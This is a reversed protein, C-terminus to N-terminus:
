VGSNSPSLKHPNIQGALCLLEYPITQAWHAAEDAGLMAAGQKGFLVVEDGVAITPQDTVDVVIQDMCVRGLLKHRHGHILVEAKNSMLRPYGNGYGAGVLALESDRALTHTGAYSIRSGRPASRRHIVRSKFTMVPELDGFAPHYGYLAIGARVAGDLIEERLSLADSGGIHTTIGEIGYQRADDMFARLAASQRRAWDPDLWGDSLHTYVAALKLQPIETIKRILPLVEEPLRGLRGMGTDIKLHVRAPRSESAAAAVHLADKDDTITLQIDHQMAERVEAGHLVSFCLIPADIGSDRLRIGEDLTAIGLAELRAHSALARAAEIMGHGYADKKMSAIINVGPALMKAFRDFNSGLAALDIECWTQPQMNASNM